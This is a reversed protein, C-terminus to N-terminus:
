PYFDRLLYSFAHLTPRVNLDYIQRQLRNPFVRNCLFIFLVDEKPDAWVLPGTYGSHGFSLHSARQAVSSKVSDFRLLPKDFGLGRRNEENPYQVTTFLDVTGKSLFYSSDILGDNLFIQWVNHVDLASGFLGANASIGGMLIAGEDHVKGHIAQMRFFTDIETPLILSDPFSKLPNFGLSEANVAEYFNSKLFNEFPVKAVNEVLEPILYSFLGSYVYEKPEKLTAKKISRKIVDYGKKTFYLSDAIEVPYKDSLSTAFYKKKYVGPSKIMKKYYPVWSQWGSSHSLLRRVTTKGRKNFDFGQIYEKIPQDIDLLGQDYLKMLALTGATVKTVSALDFLHYKQVQRISDYTHYGYAQYLLISDKSAILLVAGPFAKHKIADTIVSDIQSFVQERKALNQSNGLYLIGILMLSILLSQKSNM